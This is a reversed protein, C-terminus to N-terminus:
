WRRITYSGNALDRIQENVIEFYLLAAIEKM